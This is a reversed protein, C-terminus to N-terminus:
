QSNAVAYETYVCSGEMDPSWRMGCGLFAGHQPSM